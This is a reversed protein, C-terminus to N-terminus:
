KPELGLLSVVKRFVHEENVESIEEVFMSLDFDHQKYSCKYHGLRLEEFNAQLDDRNFNLEYREVYQAFKKRFECWIMLTIIRIVNNVDNLNGCNESTIEVGLESAKQILEDVKRQESTSCRPVKVVRDNMKRM